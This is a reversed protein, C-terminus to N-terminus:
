LLVGRRGVLKRNLTECSREKTNPARVSESFGLARLFEFRYILLFTECNNHEFHSETKFIRRQSFVQKM